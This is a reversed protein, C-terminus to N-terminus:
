AWQQFNEVVSVCVQTNCSQTNIDSLYSGHNKRQEKAGFSTDAKLSKQHVGKDCKVKLVTQTM